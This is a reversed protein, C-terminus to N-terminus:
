QQKDGDDVTAAVVAAVPTDRAAEAQAVLRRLRQAAAPGAAAVMSAFIGNSGDIAVHQGQARAGDSEGAGSRDAARLLDGPSGVEVARGEAMVVVQDYDQPADLPLDAM